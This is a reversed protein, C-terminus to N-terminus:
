VRHEPCGAAAIPENVPMGGSHELFKWTGHLESRQQVTASHRNQSSEVLNGTTQAYGWADIFTRRAQPWNVKCRRQHHYGSAHDQEDGAVIQAACGEEEGPTRNAARPCPLTPGVLSLIPWRCCPRRRTRRGTWVFMRGSRPTTRPPRRAPHSASVRWAFRRDEVLVFTAPLVLWGLLYHRASDIESPSARRGASIERCM